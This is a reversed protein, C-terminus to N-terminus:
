RAGPDSLLGGHLGRGGSANQHDRVLSGGRRGQDRGHLLARAPRWRYECQQDGAGGSTQVPHDIGLILARALSLFHEVV